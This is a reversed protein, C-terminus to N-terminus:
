ELRFEIPVSLSFEEGAQSIPVPEFPAATRVANKAANDLLVYGSSESVEVSQLTGDRKIVFRITATGEWNLRSAQPPYKHRKQIARRVKNYYDKSVEPPKKELDGNGSLISTLGPTKIETKPAVSELPRGSDITPVDVQVNNLTRNSPLGIGPRIDPLGVTTEIVKAPGTPIVIDSEVTAFESGPGRAIPNIDPTALRETQERENTDRRMVLNREDPPPVEVAIDAEVVPDERGEDVVVYTLGAAILVHAAISYVLAKPTRKKKRILM